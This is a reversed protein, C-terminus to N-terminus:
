PAAEARPVDRRVWPTTYRAAFGFLTLITLPPSLRVPDYQARAAVYRSPGASGAGSRPAAVRAALVMGHVAFFGDQLGAEDAFSTHDGDQEVVFRQEFADYFAVRDVTHQALLADGFLGALGQRREYCRVTFTIRSELGGRLTAAPGEAGGASFALDARVTGGAATV